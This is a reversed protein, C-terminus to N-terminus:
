LRSRQQQQQHRKAMARLGRSPVSSVAAQSALAENSAAQSQAQSRQAWSRGTTSNSPPVLSGWGADLPWPAAQPALFCVAAAPLEKKTKDGSGRAAHPRCLQAPSQKKCTRGRGASAFRWRARAATENYASDDHDLPNPSSCDSASATVKSDFTRADTM